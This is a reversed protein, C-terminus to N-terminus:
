AHRAGLEKFHTRWEIHKWSALQRSVRLYEFTTSSSGESRKRAAEDEEDAHDATGAAAGESFAEAAPVVNSTSQICGWASLSAQRNGGSLTSLEAIKPNVNEDHREGKM